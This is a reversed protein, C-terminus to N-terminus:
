CRKATPPTTRTSRSASAPQSRQRDACTAPGTRLAELITEAIGAPREGPEAIGPLMVAFEDGGLRAMMQGESSCRASARPWPRCCRTAPPTASCITSKRSATSTSASCPSASAAQRAGRRDGPRAARQLPPPQAAVTLADHHALYRIHQEAEKRAQLDRVAIAQHPRGAFDIPRLILEVPSMIAARQRAPRNRGATDPSRCCADRAGDADPLWSPSTAHRDARYAIAGALDAFSNNVTVITEGDCVILGEVAANALGRM